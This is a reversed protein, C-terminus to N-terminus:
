PPVQGTIIGMHYFPRIIFECFINTLHNYSRDPANKMLVLIPYRRTSVVQINWNQITKKISSENLILLRCM